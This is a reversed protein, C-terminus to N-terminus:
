FTHKFRDDLQYRQYRKQEEPVILRGTGSWISTAHFITRGAYKNVIITGYSEWHEAYPYIYNEGLLTVREIYETTGVESEMITISEELTLEEGAPFSFKYANRLYAAQFDFRFIAIRVETTKEPISSVIVIWEAHMIPIGYVHLFAIVSSNEESTVFKAAPHDKVKDWLATAQDQTQNEFIPFGLVYNYLTVEGSPIEGSPKQEFVGLM